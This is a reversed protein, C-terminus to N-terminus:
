LCCLDSSSDPSTMMEAAIQSATHLAVRLKPFLTNIYLFTFSEGQLLLSTDWVTVQAATAVKMSHDGYLDM